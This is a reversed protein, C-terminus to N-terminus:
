LGALPDRLTAAEDRLLEALAELAGALAVSIRTSGNGRARLRRLLDVAEQLMGRANALQGQRRQISACHRLDLALDEVARITDGVMGHIRRSLTLGEDYAAGAMSWDGQARLVNGVRELSVSVDRLAEATDGVIGRIRRSLELGEKYVVGAGNLDGQALLVKGVRILSLVENRLFRPTDGVTERIRRILGLAESYSAGAASLDGQAHLVDGVRLLGAAVAQLSEATDGVMGSYRRMLTLGEEFAAGGGSFDGQARLVDGWNQLSKSVDWLMEATDGVRESLRRSLELGEKYAIGAGSLDGQVQLVEGVRELCVWVERLAEVTEGSRICRERSLELGREAVSRAEDVRGRKLLLEALDVHAAAGTADADSSIAARYHREAAVLDGLNHELGALAVLARARLAATPAVEVAYVAQERGEDRRGVSFLAEAARIRATTEADAQRAHQAAAVAQLALTVAEPSGPADDRLDERLPISQERRTDAVPAVDLALSRISWLDPAAERSRAKFRTPACLLLGGRLTQRLLERRENLRLLFQDWAAQWAEEQRVVAVTVCGDCGDAGALLGALVAALEGPERPQEIESSRGVARLQGAIRSHLEHVSPTHDTFVWGIWFGPMWEIHQRLSQWAAEGSASLLEESM